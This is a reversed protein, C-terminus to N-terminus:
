KGIGAVDDVHDRLFHVQVRKLVANDGLAKRESVAAAERKLDVLKTLRVLRGCGLFCSCRGCGLTAADHCPPTQRRLTQTPHHAQPRQAACTLVSGNASEVHCCTDAPCIFTATARACHALGTANSCRSM